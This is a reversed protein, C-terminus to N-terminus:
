ILLPKLSWKPLILSKLDLLSCKTLMLSQLNFPKMEIWKQCMNKKYFNVRGLYRMLNSKLFIGCSHIFSSLNRCFTLQHVCANSHRRLARFSNLGFQLWHCSCSPLSCSFWLCFLVQVQVKSSMQRWKQVKQAWGSRSAWVNGALGLALSGTTLRTLRLDFQKANAFRHFRSVSESSWSSQGWAKFGYIRSKWHLIMLRIVAFHLLLINSSWLMPNWCHGPRLHGPHPSNHKQGTIACFEWSAFERAKACFHFFAMFVWSCGYVGTIVWSKQLVIVLFQFSNFWNLICLDQIIQIARIPPHSFYPFIVVLSVNHTGVVADCSSRQLSPCIQAFKVCCAAPFHAWSRWCISGIALSRLTLLNSDRCIKLRMFYEYLRASIQVLGVGSIDSTWGWSGAQISICIILARKLTNVVQPIPVPGSNLAHCSILSSWLHDFLPLALAVISASTLVWPVGVLQAHRLCRSQLCIPGKFELFRSEKPNVQGFKSFYAFWLASAHCRLCHCVACSVELICLHPLFEVSEVSEVSPRQALAQIEVPFCGIGSLSHCFEM